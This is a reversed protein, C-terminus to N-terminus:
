NMEIKKCITELQEQYRNALFVFHQMGNLMAKATEKDQTELESSDLLTVARTISYIPNEEYTYFLDNVYQLIEGIGPMEAFNSNEM